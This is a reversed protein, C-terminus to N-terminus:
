GRSGVTRLWGRSPWERATRTPVPSRRRTPRRARCRSMPAIRRGSVTEASSIMSGVFLFVSERCACTPLRSRLWASVRASRATSRRTPRVSSVRMPARRACPRALAGSPQEQAARRRFSAPRTAVSVAAMIVYGLAGPDDRGDSGKLDGVQTKLFRIARASEGAGVGAAHLGLVAYATNTVDPVGFSVLHGGGADIQRALFGAGARASRSTHRAASATGSVLPMATLGFGLAVSTAVTVLRRILVQDGKATPVAVTVRATGRQRPPSRGPESACDVAHLRLGDRALM